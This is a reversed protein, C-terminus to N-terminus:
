SMSASHSVCIHTMLNVMMLESLPKDGPWRWAMIQVLAPINNIPFKLVFKLSIKLSIWIYENLFIQKFVDDTFHRGNQRPRLSNVTYGLVLVGTSVCHKLLTCAGNSSKTIIPSLRRACMRKLGVSGYHTTQWHSATSVRTTMKQGVTMANLAGPQFNFLFLLLREVAAKFQNSHLWNIQM